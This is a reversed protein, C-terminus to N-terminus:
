ILTSDCLGPRDLPSLRIGSCSFGYDYSINQYLFPVDLDYCTIVPTAVAFHLAAAIGIPSEVMCGIMGKLGAADILAAIKGAQRIGGSKLLKINIIDASEHEIVNLADSPSFVSEDAVLPVDINRRIEAMGELDSAKVPQELLDVHIATRRCSEMFKFTEERSWGQNADIRLQCNVSDAITRFRMFDEEANDGLKIKLTKFGKKEAEIADTAMQKRDRLSITLDTDVSDSGGGLFQSLPLGARKSAIDYLAMDLAAKSALFNQQSENLEDLLENLNDVSRGKLVSSFHSFGRRISEETEGTIAATPTAAGIGCLGEDTQIQVHFVQVIDVRRLATIFPKKLMFHDEKISIQQITM